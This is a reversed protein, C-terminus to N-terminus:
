IWIEHWWYFITLHISNTHILSILIILNTISQTRSEFKNFKKDIKMKWIIANFENGRIYLNGVNLIKDLLINRVNKILIHLLRELLLKELKMDLKWCIVHRKSM